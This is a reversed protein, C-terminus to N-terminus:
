PSEELSRHWRELVGRIDSLSVSIYREWAAYKGHPYGVLNNLSNSVALVVTEDSASVDPWADAVQRLASFTVGFLTQFESDNAIVLGTAVCALCQGIVNRDAESLDSLEM